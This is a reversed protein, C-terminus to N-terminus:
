LCIWAIFCCTHAFGKPSDNLAEAILSAHETTRHQEVQRFSMGVCVSEVGCPAADEQHPTVEEPIVFDPVSGSLLDQLLKTFTMDGIGYV